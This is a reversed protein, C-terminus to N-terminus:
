VFQEHRAKLASSLFARCSELLGRVSEDRQAQRIAAIEKDVSRRKEFDIPDTPRYQGYRAFHSLSCPRSPGYSLRIPHGNIAGDDFWPSYGCETKQGLWMLFPTLREQPVGESRNKKWDIIESLAENVESPKMPRTAWHERWNTEILYKAPSPAYLGRDGPYQFERLFEAQRVARRAWEETWARGNWVRILDGQQHPRHGNSPWMEWFVAMYKESETPTIRRNRCQWAVQRYVDWSDFDKPKETRYEPEILFPPPSYRDIDEIRRKEYAALVDDTIFPDAIHTALVTAM